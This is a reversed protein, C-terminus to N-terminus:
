DVVKLSRKMQKLSRLWFYCVVVGGCFFGVIFFLYYLVWDM